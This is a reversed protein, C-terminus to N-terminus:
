RGNALNPEFFIVQILKGEFLTFDRKVAFFYSLSDRM